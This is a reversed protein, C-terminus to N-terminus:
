LIKINVKGLEEDKELSFLIKALQLATNLVERDIEKEILHRYMFKLVLISFDNDGIDHLAFNINRVTDIRYCEDIKEYLNILKEFSKTFNEIDKQKIYILCIKEYSKFSWHYTSSNDRELEIVEKFKSIDHSNEAEIFIDELNIGDHNNNGQDDYEDPNYEIDENYDDGDGYDSM